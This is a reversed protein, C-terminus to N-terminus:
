ARNQTSQLIFPVEKKKKGQESIQVSYSGHFGRFRVTGKADTKLTLNTRWDHNILQDLVKYAPKPNMASDLLGGLFSNETGFATGDGLNWWTIGKM